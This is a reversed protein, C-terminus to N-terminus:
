LSEDDGGGPLSFALRVSRACRDDVCRAGPPEIRWAYLTESDLHSTREGWTDITL